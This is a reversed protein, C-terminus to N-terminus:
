AVRRPQGEELRRALVRAPWKFRTLLIMATIVYLKHEAEHKIVTHSEAVVRRAAVTLSRVPALRGWFLAKGVTARDRLTM